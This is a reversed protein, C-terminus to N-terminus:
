KGEDNYNGGPEVIAYGATNALAKEAAVQRAKGLMKEVMAEAMKEVAEPTLDKPPSGVGYALVIDWAHAQKPSDDDFAHRLIVNALSNAEGSDRGDLAAQFRRRVRM